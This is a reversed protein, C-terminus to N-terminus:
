LPMTPAKPIGVTETQTTATQEVQVTDDKDATDDWPGELATDKEQDPHLFDKVYPALEGTKPDTHSIAENFSTRLEEFHNQPAVQQWDRWFHGGSDKEKNTKYSLRTFTKGLLMEATNEPFRQHEVPKTKDIRAGTLGISELFIKVKYATGWGVTNGSVTDAKFWGGVYFEPEFSKGIDLTMELGVDDPKKQWKQAKNYVVNAKLITANDISVNTRQKPATDTGGFTISM